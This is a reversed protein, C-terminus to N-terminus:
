QAVPNAHNLINQVNENSLEYGYFTSYYYKIEAVVDLDEFLEPHITKALYLMLLVGEGSYDWNFVGSPCLYVAGNEVATIGSWAPNETVIATDNMRGMFIIDPDWNMITEITVTSNMEVPTEKAIYYGGALEVLYQPYSNQSFTVLGEDSRAYYVVPRDEDAISDTRSRVYDLKEDFYKCWAEGMAVSDGGFADAFAMVETKQFDIWGELDSYPLEGSCQTVVYPIEAEDLLPTLQAYDHCIIFEAGLELLTEIGPEKTSEFKTLEDVEPHILKAWANACGKYVGALRDTAGVIMCKEYGPGPLVVVNQADSPVEVVRGTVDTVTNVVPGALEVPTGEEAPTETSAPESIVPEETTAPVSEKKSSACATLNGLLMVCALLLCVLKKLNKM